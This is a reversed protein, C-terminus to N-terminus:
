YKPKTAMKPKATKMAAHHKHHHIPKPKAMPAPCLFPLFACILPKYHAPGPAAAFAGGTTAALSGAAIIAAIIATPFRRNPM